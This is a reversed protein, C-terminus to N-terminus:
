IVLADQPITFVFQKASWHGFRTKGTRLKEYNIVGISNAGQEQITKEWSPIVIKPCIVFAKKGLAKTAEVACVTKGTGTDSSDLAANNRLVAM